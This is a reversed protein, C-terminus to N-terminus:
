PRDELIAVLRKLTEADFGPRIRVTHGGALIEIAAPAPALTPEVVRVPVFAAPPPVVRRRGPAARSASSKRRKSLDRKQLESQWWGLVDPSLEERRAFETKPLASARWRELVGRWHAERRAKAEPTRVGSKPYIHNTM